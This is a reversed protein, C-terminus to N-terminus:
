GGARGHCVPCAVGDVDALAAHSSAVATAAVRLSRYVDAVQLDPRVLSPALAPLPNAAVLGTGEGWWTLFGPCVCSLSFVPAPAGFVTCRAPQGVGLFAGVSVRVSSVLVM